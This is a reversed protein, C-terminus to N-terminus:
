SPNLSVCRVSFSRSHCPRRSQRSDTRRSRRRRPRGAAREHLDVAARECPEPVASRLEREEPGHVVGGGLDEGQVEAGGFIDVAVGGEKLVQEDVVTQGQGEVAIAEVEEDAVVRM